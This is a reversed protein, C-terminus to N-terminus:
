CGHRPELTMMVPLNSPQIVQVLSQAPPVKSHDFQSSMYEGPLLYAPGHRYMRTCHKLTLAPNDECKKLALTLMSTLIDAVGKSVCVLTSHRTAGTLLSPIPPNIQWFM